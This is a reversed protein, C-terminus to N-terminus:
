PDWETHSSLWTIGRSMNVSCTHIDPVPSASALLLFWAAPQGLEFALPPPHLMLVCIEPITETSIFCPLPCLLITLHQRKSPPVWSGLDPSRLFLTWALPLLAALAGLTLKRKAGPFFARGALFSCTAMWPGHTRTDQGASWADRGLSVGVLLTLNPIM